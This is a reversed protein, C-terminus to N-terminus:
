DGFRLYLITKCLKEEEKAPASMIENCGDLIDSINSHRCRRRKQSPLKVVSVGRIQGCASLPSCRVDTFSYTLRNLRQLSADCALAPISSVLISDNKKYQALIMSTGDFLSRIRQQTQSLCVVSMNHYQSSGITNLWEKTITTTVIDITEQLHYINSAYFYLLVHNNRSAVRM